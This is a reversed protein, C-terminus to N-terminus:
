KKLALGTTYTMYKSPSWKIKFDILRIHLSINYNFLSYKPYFVSIKDYFATYQTSIYPRFYLNLTTKLPSNKLLFARLSFVLDAVRIKYTCFSYYIDHVKFPVM